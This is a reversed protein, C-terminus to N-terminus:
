RSKKGNGSEAAEMKDLMRRSEQRVFETADPRVSLDMWLAKSLGKMTHELSELRDMMRDLFKSIIVLLAGGFTFQVAAAPDVNVQALWDIM